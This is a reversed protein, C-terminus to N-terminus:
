VKAARCVNRLPEGATLRALNEGFLAKQQPYGSSGGGAIHPSIIVNPLDWLPSTPPLPEIETVDLAAGGLRGAQLAAILAAGDVIDGRAVNVLFAKPRMAALAAADILHHSSPDSSTCIVVADAMALAEAIRERGFVREVAGGATGARSVAIVRADFAKAKRAVARGIAGLGLVCVVTGELTGVEAMAEDHRWHRALQDAHLDPLRRVLALLLALAHESVMAAKVGTANTVTAWGPLGMRLGGDIGASTFHIWQLAEGAHRRLAEGYAASCVRNSTVLIAADGIERAIDGPAAAIAWQLQPFDRVLGVIPEDPGFPYLVAKM